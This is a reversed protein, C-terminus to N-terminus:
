AGETEVAVGEQRLHAAGKAPVGQPYRWGKGGAGSLGTDGVDGVSSRGRAEALQDNATLDLPWMRM